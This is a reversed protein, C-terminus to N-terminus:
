RKGRSKKLQNVIAGRRAQRKRAEAKAAEQDEHSGAAQQDEALREDETISQTLNQGAPSNSKNKSEPEKSPSDSKADQRSSEGSHGAPATDTSTTQNHETSDSGPTSPGAPATGQSTNQKQTTTASGSPRSGPNQRAPATDTSASQNHGAPVSGASQSGSSQGASGANPTPKISQAGGLQQSVSPKPKGPFGGGRAAATAGNAGEDSPTSGGTGTPTPAINRPTGLVSAPGKKLGYIDGMPPVEGAPAAGKGMATKANGAIHQGLGTNAMGKMVKDAAAGVGAVLPAAAGAAAGAVATAGKNALSAAGEAVKQKMATAGAAGMAADQVMKATGAMTAAVPLSVDANSLLRGTVIPVAIMIGGMIFNLLGMVVQIAVLGMNTANGEPILELLADKITLNFFLFVIGEMVPWVLVLGSLLWWGKTLNVMPRVAWAVGGWVIALAFLLGHFLKTLAYVLMVCLTSLTFFLQSFVGVVMAGTKEAAGLVFGLPDFSDGMLEYLQTEYKTIVDGYSEFVGQVSGTSAFLSYFANFFGVAMGWAAFYLALMLGSKGFDNIVPMWEPAKPSGFERAIRMVITLVFLVGGLVGLLASAVVYANEYFITPELKMMSAVIWENVSGM